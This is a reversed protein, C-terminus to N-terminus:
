ARGGGAAARLVGDWHGWAPRDPLDDAVDDRTVGDPYSWEAVCDHGDCSARRYFATAADRYTVTWHVDVNDRDAAAAVVAALCDSCLTRHDSYAPRDDGPADPRDSRDAPATPHVLAYDYAGAPLLETPSAVRRPLVVAAGRDVLPAANDAPLEVFTGPQLHYTEGDVGLIDGVPEIIQLRRHPEISDPLTAGDDTSAEPTM